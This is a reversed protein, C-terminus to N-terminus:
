TAELALADRDPPQRELRLGVVHALRRCHRQNLPQEGGPRADVGVIRFGHCTALPIKPDFILEGLVAVVRKVPASASATTVSHFSNRSGSKLASAVLQMCGGSMKSPRLM